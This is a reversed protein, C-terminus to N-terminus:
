FFEPNDNKLRNEFKVISALLHHKPNLKRATDWCRWAARSNYSRFYLGGLDKWAGTIHPNKSLVDHFLQMAEKQMGLSSRINAEFIKLVHKKDKSKTRLAVLTKVAKQAEEKSKPRISPLFTKVGIDNVILERQSNFQKPMQEGTALTYELYTLMTDLYRKENYADTAKLLLTKSSTSLANESFNTNTSLLAALAGDVKGKNFKALSPLKDSTYKHSKLRLTTIKTQVNLSTITLSSPIGKLQQLSKLIEPHGGLHYRLFRIFQDKYSQKIQVLNKDYKFLEKGNWNFTVNKSKNNKKIESQHKKATLSLNHESLTTAMPNDKLSAASLARGLHLRNQFEYGRFGIDMFLSDDMYTKDSLNITIIRHHNFDYIYRQNNEEYSFYNKGIEVLLISSTTKPKATQEKPSIVVHEKDFTLILGAQVAQTIAFLIIVTLLRNFRLIDTHLFKTINM